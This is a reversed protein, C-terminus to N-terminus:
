AATKEHDLDDIFRLIKPLLKYICTKHNIRGSILANEVWDSQHGSWLDWRNEIYDLVLLFKKERPTDPMSTFKASDYGLETVDISYDMIAIKNMM